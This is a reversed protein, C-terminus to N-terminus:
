LDLNLSKLFDEDSMDTTSTPAQSAAKQTTPADIEEDEMMPPDDNLSFDPEVDTSSSAVQQTKPETSQQESTDKQYPTRYKAFVADVAAPGTKVIEAVEEATPRVFLKNLQFAEKELRPYLDETVVHSNPVKFTKGNVTETKMNLTVSVVSNQAGDGSKVITLFAGEVGVPDFGESEEIQKRAADIANKERMKLKLLGIEGQLNMANVYFRKELNFTKLEAEIKSIQAELAESPSKANREALQAKAAEMRKIREEAEDAVEVMKTKRNVVKPSQFVKMFGRSDRYGYHVAAYSSWVGRDALEGLPPLIRYVQTGKLISFYKKKAFKKNNVDPKGVKM